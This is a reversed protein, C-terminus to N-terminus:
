YDMLMPQRHRVAQRVARLVFALGYRADYELLKASAWADDMEGEYRDLGWSEANVRRLEDMLSISSGIVTKTGDFDETEFPAKLLCPLWLGVFPVLNPFRSRRESLALAPDEENGSPPEDPRPLEPHELYAAWIQLAKWGRWGPKETFYPATASEDWDLGDPF